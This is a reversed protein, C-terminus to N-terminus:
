RREVTYSTEVEATVNDTSSQNNVQIKVYDNKDLILTDLVTFVAIDRPGSLNAVQRTEMPGDVFMGTSDDWISFKIGINDNGTGRITISAFLSYERPNNGLHRLHGNSPNDFHELNSALYVGALDEYDDINNITTAVETMVKAKAGEFTNGIGVCNSWDSALSGKTINPMITADTADFVGNRAVILENLQLTSPNPFHSPAFDTLSATTGLDVNQNTRFRSVMTFGAGAEFLPANMANDLFRVASTSIFYGGWSGKLTLTPTGGYRGTTVELGQLYNDVTGMSTCGIMDVITFNFAGLGNDSRIDYVQSNTGSVTVSYGQGLINCQGGAESLFMTYNDENSVLKSANVNYGSINLGGAPITITQTGMQIVGDLFYEKTSDLAGALDTAAKVVVRNDLTDNNISNFNGNTKSFATRIPDGTGDNPGTGIDVLNLISM